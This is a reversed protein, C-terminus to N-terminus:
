RYDGDQKREVRSLRSNIDDMKSDIGGITLGLKYLAGLIIGTLVTVFGLIALTVTHDSQTVQQAGWMVLVLLM